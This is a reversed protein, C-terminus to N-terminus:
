KKADRARLRLCYFLIGTGYKYWVSKGVTIRKGSNSLLGTAKDIEFIFVEHSDQNAVLLWNGTPTLILISPRKEWAPNLNSWWYL